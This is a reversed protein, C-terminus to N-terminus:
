ERTDLLEPAFRHGSYFEPGHIYIEMSICQVQLNECKKREKKIIIEEKKPEPANNNPM